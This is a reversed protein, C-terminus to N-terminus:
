ISMLFLISGSWVAGKLATQDPSMNSSEMFSDSRFHMQIYAASTFLLGCKWSLSLLPSILTIGAHLSESGVMFPATDRHWHLAIDNPHWSSSVTFVAFGYKRACWIPIEATKGMHSWEKECVWVLGLSLYFCIVDIQSTMTTLIVDGHQMEAFEPNEPLRKVDELIFHPILHHALFLIWWSHSPPISFDTRGSWQNDDSPLGRSALRHDEPRIKRDWGWVWSPDKYSRIEKRALPLKDDASLM